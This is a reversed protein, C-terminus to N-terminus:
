PNKLNGLKTLMTASLKRHDSGIQTLLFDLGELAIQEVYNEWATHVLVVTSRLLPGTDGPPRGPAGQQSPHLTVLNQAGHLLPIFTETRLSSNGMPM